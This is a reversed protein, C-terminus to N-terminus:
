LWLIKSAKRDALSTYFKRIDRGGRILKGDILSGNLRRRSITLISGHVAEIKSMIYAKEERYKTTILKAVDGKRIEIDIFKSNANYSYGLDEMVKKEIKTDWNKGFDEYLVDYLKDQYFKLNNYLNMSSIQCFSLAIDSAKNVHMTRLCQKGDNSQIVQTYTIGRKLASIVFLGKVEDLIYKSFKKYLSCDKQKVNKGVYFCDLPITEINM